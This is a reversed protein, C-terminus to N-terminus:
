RLNEPLDKTLFLQRKENKNVLLLYNDIRLNFHSYTKKDFLKLNKNNIVMHKKLIVIM